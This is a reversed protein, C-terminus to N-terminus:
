QDPKADGDDSRNMPKELMSETNGKRRSRLRRAAVTAYALVPAFGAVVFLVVGALVSRMTLAMMLIVYLWALAVIHM